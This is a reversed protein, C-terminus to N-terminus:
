GGLFLVKNMESSQTLVRSQNDDRARGPSFWNRQVIALIVTVTESTTRKRSDETPFMADLAAVVNEGAGLNRDQQVQLGFFAPLGLGVLNALDALNELAVRLFVRM